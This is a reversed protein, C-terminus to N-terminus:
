QEIIVLEPAITHIDALIESLKYSKMDEVTDVAGASILNITIEPLENSRHKNPQIKKM